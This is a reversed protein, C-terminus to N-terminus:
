YQVLFDRVSPLDGLYGSFIRYLKSFGNLDKFIHFFDPLFGCFILFILFIRFLGFIWCFTWFDKLFELFFDTLFLFDLVKFTRFYCVQNRSTFQSRCHRNLSLCSFKALHSLIICHLSKKRGPTQVFKFTM